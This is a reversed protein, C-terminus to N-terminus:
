PRDDDDRSPNQPRDRGTQSGDPDRKEPVLCARELFLGTVMLAIGALVAVGSRIVRQQPLEADWRGVFMLGFTLYGGAILAGVLAAAKGLALLTVARQPEIWTRKVQIRQRTSWALGAVLVAAVWLAIPTLWPVLPPSFGLANATNVILWGALAGFIAALVLARPTTRHLRGSPDPGSGTPQGPGSSGSFAAGGVNRHRASRSM